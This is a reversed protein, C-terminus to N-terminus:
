LWPSRQKVAPGGLWRRLVQGLITCGRAIDECGTAACSLRLYQKGSRRPFFEDGPSVLVDAQRLEAAVATSDCEPPLELWFYLGGDNAYWRVAAPLQEHLCRQMCYYREKYVGVMADVCRDWWGRRLMVDLARQNLGSSAIDSAQKAALVAAQLEAPLIIFALRLGPMLIKSFSKLYITRRGGALAALPLLRRGAYDLESFADEELIYMGAQGAARSIARREETTYCYGTPNQFDPMLYLLKPRGSRIIRKLLALDPGARTLPWERIVAGRSRFAALAGPYTPSEVIVEDGPSLLAKAIVDLGQQAGSVVQVDDAGCVVGRARMLQAFGERLPQFGRSDDYSFVAAGDRDLVEVVATKFEEVPFFDPTPVSTMFNITGPGVEVQAQGWEGAREEGAPARRSVFTGSGVRAVLYGERALEKYAGAVTLPTVGLQSALQRVTPLREGEKLQGDDILKALAEKLQIYRPRGRDSTLQISM